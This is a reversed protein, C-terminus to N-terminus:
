LGLRFLRSPRLDVDFPGAVVRRQNWGSQYEAGRGESAEIEAVWWTRGPWVRNGSPELARAIAGLAADISTHRGALQRRGPVGGDTFSGYRILRGNMRKLTYYYAM